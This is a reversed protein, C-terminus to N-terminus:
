ILGADETEIERLILRQAFERDHQRHSVIQAPLSVLRPLRKRHLLGARVRFFRQTRRIPLRFRLKQGVKGACPKCAPPAPAKRRSIRKRATGDGLRRWRARTSERPNFKGPTRNSNRARGRGACNTWMKLYRFM